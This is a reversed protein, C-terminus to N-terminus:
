RRLCPQQRTLLQKLRAAGYQIRVCEGVSDTADTDLTHSRLRDRELLCQKCRRRQQKKYREARGQCVGEGDGVVAGGRRNEEEGEERQLTDADQSMRPTTPLPFCGPVVSVLHVQTLFLFM